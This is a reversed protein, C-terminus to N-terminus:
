LTDLMDGDKEKEIAPIYVSVTTGEGVISSIKLGYGCGFYLKIRDDINKLGFADKQRVGNESFISALKEAEMGIGNDTVRIHILDGHLHATIGIHGHVGAPLGALGHCVANEIIPQLTLKLIKDSRLAEECEITYDFADAYRIKQIYLYDGVNALEDALSVIEHGNSLSIRYFDALSKISGLAKERDGMDVMAYVLQLTNYFFHPKIQDQLLKLEARRQKERHIKETAVLENIRRKMENISHALTGVDDSTEAVSTAQELNDLNLNEVDHILTCLSSTISHALWNSLPIVALVSIIGLLFIVLSIQRSDALVEKMPVAAILYWGMRSFETKTLLVSQGNVMTTCSSGEGSAVWNRISEEQIPKLLESSDQASVVTGESDCFFFETGPTGGVNACVNALTKEDIMVTLYGLTKGSNINIVKKCYPLVVESGDVFELQMMDLWSSNSAGSQALSSCAAHLAMYHDSSLLNDSTIETNDTSIFLVGYLQKYVYLANRYNKKISTDIGFPSVSSSADSIFYNNMRVTLDNSYSEANDLLGEVSSIVLRADGSLMRLESSQVSRYFILETVLLILATQSVFLIAYILSIKTRINRKHFWARIRSVLRKM